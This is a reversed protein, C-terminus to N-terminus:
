HNRALLYKRLIRRYRDVSIPKETKENLMSVAQDYAMGFLPRLLRTTAYFNELILMEDAAVPWVPAAVDSGVRNMARRVRPNRAAEERVMKGYKAPNLAALKALAMPSNGKEAFKQFLALEVIEQASPVYPRGRANRPLAALPVHRKGRATAPIRPKGDSALPLATSRHHVGFWATEFDDLIQIEEEIEARKKRSVNRACERKLFQRRTKIARHFATLYKPDDLGTAEVPEAFRLKYRRKM